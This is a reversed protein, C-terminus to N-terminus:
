TIKSIEHQVDTPYDYEKDPLRNLLEIVKDPASKSKAHGILRSKDAPYDMGGLFVQLQAAAAKLQLSEPINRERAM